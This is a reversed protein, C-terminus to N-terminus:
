KYASTKLARRRKREDEEEERERQLPLICFTLATLM